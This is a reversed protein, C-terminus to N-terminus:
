LAMKPPDWTGLVERFIKGVEGVTVYSQVAEMMIPMTNLQNECAKRLDDMCREARDKDRRKRLGELREMAIEWSKPNHRFAKVSHPEEDMQFCNMGVIKLEGSSVKRQKEM